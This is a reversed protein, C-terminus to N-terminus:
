RRLAAWTVLGYLAVMSAVIYLALIGSGRIATAAVSANYVRRLALAAYVILWVTAGIGITTAIRLSGTFKAAEGVALALFVFAHLHVAFYFHEPYHRGRFFLAVIAAFVPLLAFLVRPMSELMSKRFGLPDEVVRRLIPRVYVPSANILALASDREAATLDATRKTPTWVGINVGAVSVASANGPRLNPATSAVIFYALSCALYLRVPSIFRARQGALFRQTLEGPRTVLLRLTEVFKGDWGSFEGAADGALERVTPHPPIARQGCHACFPGDLAAGCNLCAAQWEPLIPNGGPPLTSGKTEAHTTASVDGSGM